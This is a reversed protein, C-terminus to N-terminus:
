ADPFREALEDANERVRVTADPWVSVEVLLPVSLVGLHRLPLADDIHSGIVVMTVEMSSAQPNIRMATPSVFAQFAVPLATADVLAPEPLDNGYKRRLYDSALPHGPPFVPPRGM